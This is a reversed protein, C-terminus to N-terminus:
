LSDVEEWSDVVITPHLQTVVVEVKRISDSVTGEAEISRNEGGGLTVTYSCSGQGLSFGGSGAFSDSDRIEQLAEEACADALARAQYSDVLITAIQLDDVSFRLGAVTTAIVLAGLILVGMLAVFGDNNVFLHRDMSHKLIIHNM